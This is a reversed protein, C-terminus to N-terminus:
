EKDDPKRAELMADAYSYAIHAADTTEPDCATDALMGQLAAVAFRDRLTLTEEPLTEKGDLLDIFTQVIDHAHSFGKKYDAAKARLDLAREPSM